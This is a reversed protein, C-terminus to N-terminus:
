GVGDWHWFVGGWGQRGWDVRVKLTQSGPLVEWATRGVAATVVTGGGGSALGASGESDSNSGITSTSTSTSAPADKPLPPLQFIQPYVNGPEPPAPPAVAGRTASQAAGSLAGPQDAVTITLPGRELLRQV